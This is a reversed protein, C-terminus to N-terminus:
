SNETRRCTHRGHLNRCMRIHVIENVNGVESTFCGVLQGLQNLPAPLGEHRRPARADRPRESLREGTRHEINM